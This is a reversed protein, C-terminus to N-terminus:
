NCHIAPDIGPLQIPDDISVVGDVGVVRRGGTLNKDVVAQKSEGLKACDARTSLAWRQAPMNLRSQVPLILRRDNRFLSALCM